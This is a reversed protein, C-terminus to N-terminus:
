HSQSARILAAEMVDLPPEVGTYLRFQEAAQFLRMRFGTVCRAGQARAQALLTTELPEAVIDFVVTDPRLLSEPVISEGSTHYGVSTTNVIIDYHGVQDLEDLPHVSVLDFEKAQAVANELTRNYLRVSAGAKILAYIIARSAGGAGIVVADKGAPSGVEALAKTAGVWDANYGTLIGDDNVITNVAKIEAASPDLRDLHPLVTLKHPMTVGCGRIGLTRLSQVAAPVDQVAFAVYTFDLGLAQYAANHYAVGVKSPREGFSCCLRPFSHYM